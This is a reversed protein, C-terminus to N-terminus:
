SRSRSFYWFLFKKWFLLVLTSPSISSFVSSQFLWFTCLRVPYAIVSMLCHKYSMDINMLVLRCGFLNFDKSISAISLSSFYWPKQAHTHTCRKYLKYCLLITYLIYTIHAKALYGLIHCVWVEGRRSDSCNIAAFTTDFLAFCASSYKGAHIIMKLGLLHLSIKIRWTKVRHKRLKILKFKLEIRKLCNTM